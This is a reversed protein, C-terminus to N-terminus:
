SDQSEIASLCFQDGISAGFFKSANGQNVALEVFGSGGVLVLCAKPNVDGYTLCFPLDLSKDGIHVRVSCSSSIKAEELQQASINSIINGFDDIHLVEGVTEGKKIKPRAFNPVIYDFTEPGFACPKIGLTLHAAVPAFIDRGHFTYSIESRMYDPNTISYVHTIKEKQAALILVGNDPGVYLNRRTEIIISLRKTGVGPDVVAVHVTKSPFYPVASALCYAGMSISFKTVQHTIDVLRVQPNISLIVAKMEAVYPDKQGFDTLLSIISV